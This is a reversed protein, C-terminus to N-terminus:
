SQDPLMPVWGPQREIRGIWERVAPLPDLDLGGEEAVHTYAYLAIDAITYRGAVFFERQGIHREMVELAARGAKQRLALPERFRDAQRAISVWFRAVAINPEHSNQEFFMWQLVRIRDDGEPLYPTREALHWLIAGSEAICRGDALELVPVRGAPNKGELDRRDGRDLVDIEVREYSRGLHSLLLRVKYCNGSVPSDYLVLPGSM